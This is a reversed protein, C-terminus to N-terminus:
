KAKPREKQKGLIVEGSDTFLRVPLEFIRRFIEFTGTAMTKVPIATVEPNEWSGKAEFYTTIMSGDGGSLIWGVVPIHSVVRDVTQLPQVGILMDLTEKVVDIKGVSTVHMVNSDIFFDQSTLIGDKVGITATIQNFPMGDHAMDPLRFTLLQSVNLISIIKSLSKFERLVGREVMLSFLGNATQKITKLDEGQANLTGKITASGRLERSIGLLHLLEDSHARELLLSLNWLPAHGAARTLHGQLTLQGGFIGTTLKNLKLIGNDNQLSAALKTFSTDKYSGAEAMLNTHLKFPAPKDGKVNASPSTSVLLPYLEDIDLYSSTIHLKIDPTGKTHITGSASLTSKPLKGTINRITLLGDRIALSTSFQRIHPVKNPSSIGFDVPNLESSTAFLEAEPNELSAIRGKITLPTSGYRITMSSTELSNGKFQIQTNIATVPELKPHPKLSFGALKVRGAFQMTGISHPDGSGLLHTQVGGQLQYQQWNTLVPLHKDLHFQNSEIDFSLFPTEEAYRLLGSGSLKLPPLLYSFSTFRTADKNLVASFSLNNTMGAPKKVVTTYEYSAPTLFWEGSLQFASTPGDGQLKLTSAGQFQLAEVGAIEALWAVEAPKPTITMTFPYLTPTGETAYEKITGEMTFPSNGFSGKMGILNFDRGKLELTGKIQQFTPAKAGYQISAQEATGKIYLTEANNGAGFRALQSFHGNLTGNDLKFLGARIKHEIFDAADDAIIGFPIYNQVRTYDFTESAAKVHISPDSSDLDSLKFAGKIAFGDLRLQVSRIDLLTPSWVLDADLQVQKPAVPAHFVTPWVVNISNAVITGKAQLDQWRGKAGLKLSITGGPDAFSVFRGLYPWLKSYELQNLELKVDIKTNKLSEGANPLRISGTTTISNPSNGELLATLKFACKKGRKLNGLSLNIGSFNLKTCTPETAQDRWFLVSDKIKIGKLHFDYATSSPQLLDNINLIGDEDRSITIRANDIIIERLEIKQALLPLLALRFSVRRASIFEHSSEREQLYVDHFTFTPGLIWTFQSNGLRVTRNLQKQLLETLQTQYSNLDFLRPLLFSLSLSFAGALLLLLIIIKLFRSSAKSTM